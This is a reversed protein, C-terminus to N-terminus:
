QMMLIIRLNGTGAHVIGFIKLSLLIRIILNLAHFDWKLNVPLSSEAKVEWKHAGQECLEPATVM